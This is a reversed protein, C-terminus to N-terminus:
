LFLFNLRGLTVKRGSRGRLQNDIRRTEHRETGLVFLGGLEKVLLNQQQWEGLRDKYIVDYLFKLSLPCTELSYPLNNLDKELLSYSFSKNQYEDFVDYLLQKYCQPAKQPFSCLEMIKEKIQFTLNGGLIIDTGRGAMNTAITVAFAEGAQAVIENERILNEPKANLVQYPIKAMEFLSSLFESKEVDSTGILIPQGKTYCIKAQKLIILGLLFGNSQLFFFTNKM